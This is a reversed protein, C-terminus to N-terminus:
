SSFLSEHECTLGLQYKSIDMNFSADVGGGGGGKPGRPNKVMFRLM